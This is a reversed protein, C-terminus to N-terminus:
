PRPHIQAPEHVGKRGPHLRGGGPNRSGQAPARPRRRRADPQDARDGLRTTPAAMRLGRGTAPVREQSSLGLRKLFVQLLWPGVIKEGRAPVARRVAHLIDSSAPGTSSVEPDPHQAAPGPPHPPSGTSARRRATVGPWGGARRGSPESGRRHRTIAALSYRAMSFPVATRERLWTIRQTEVFKLLYQRRQKRVPRACGTPDVPVEDGLLCPRPKRRVENREGLRVGREGNVVKEADVYRVGSFFFVEDSAHPLDKLAKAVEAIRPHRVAINRKRLGSTQDAPSIGAFSVPEVPAGCPSPGFGPGDQDLAAVVVPAFESSTQGFVQGPECRSRHGGVAKRRIKRPPRGADLSISGEPPKILAGSQGTHELVRM